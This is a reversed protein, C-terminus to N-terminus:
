AGGISQQIEGILMKCRQYASGLFRGPLTRKGKEVGVQEGV